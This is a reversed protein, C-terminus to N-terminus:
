KGRAFVSKAMNERQVRVGQRASHSRREGRGSQKGKAIREQFNNLGSGIHLVVLPAIVTSTGNSHDEAADKHARLARREASSRCPADSLSVILHCCPMKVKRTLHIEIEYFIWSSPRM